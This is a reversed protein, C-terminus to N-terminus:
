TESQDSQKLQLQITIRGTESCCNCGCYEGGCQTCREQGQHRALTYTDVHGCDQCVVYGDTLELRKASM